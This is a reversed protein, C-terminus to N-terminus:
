MHLGVHVKMYSCCIINWSVQKLQILTTISNAVQQQVAINQQKLELSKRKLVLYEKEFELSRNDSVGPASDISIDAVSDCANKSSSSTMIKRHKPKSVSGPSIPRITDESDLPITECIGSISDNGILGCIREEM